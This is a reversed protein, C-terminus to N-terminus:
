AVEGTKLADVRQDLMTRFDVKALLIIPAPTFKASFSCCSEQAGRPGTVNGEHTRQQFQSGIWFDGIISVPSRQHHGSAHTGAGRAVGGARFRFAQFRNFQQDFKARVDVSHVPVSFCRHM